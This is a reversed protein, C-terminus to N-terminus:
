QHASLKKILDDSIEDASVGFGNVLIGKHGHKSEIAYVIAEDAPDSNGEFRHIESIEFEAPALRIGNEKCAISEKDINFDIAYGRQKLGSVAQTVTDYSFM